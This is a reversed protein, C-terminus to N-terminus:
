SAHHEGMVSCDSSLFGQMPTDSNIFRLATHLNEEFGESKNSNNDLVLLNSGPDPVRSQISQLYASWNNIKWTDRLAARTRVREQAVSSDVHLWIKKVLINPMGQLVELLESNIGMFEKTFPASCVVSKGLHINELAVELLTKYEIDSFFKLYAASHGEQRSGGLLPLIANCFNHSLTDKDLYLAGSFSSCIATAFHTKGSGPIGGVLILRPITTQTSNLVHAPM